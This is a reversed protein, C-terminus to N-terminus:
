LLTCVAFHSLCINSACSMSSHTSFTVFGSRNTSPHPAPSSNAIPSPRPGRCTDQAGQLRWPKIPQWRHFLLWVIGVISPSLQMWLTILRTDDPPNIHPHIISAICYWFDPSSLGSGGQVLEALWTKRPTAIGRNFRPWSVVPERKRQEATLSQDTGYQAQDHRELLCCGGFPRARFSSESERRGADGDADGDPPPQEARFGTQPAIENNARRRLLRLWRGSRGARTLKHERKEKTAKCTEHLKIASARTIGLFIGSRVVPSLTAFYRRFRSGGTTTIFHTRQALKLHNGVLFSLRSIM